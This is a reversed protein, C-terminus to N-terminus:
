KVKKTRLEKLIDTSADNLAAAITTDRSGEDVPGSAGGGLLNFVLSVANMSPDAGGGPLGVGAGAGAGSQNLMLKMMSSPGGLYLRAALQAVGLARRWTFAGTKASASKSAKPAPGGPTFLRYEVKAEHLESPSGGGTAKRLM